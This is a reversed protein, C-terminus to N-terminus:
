VDFNGTQIYIQRVVDLFVSANFKNKFQGISVEGSPANSDCVCYSWKLPKHSGGSKLGDFLYFRLEAVKTREKQLETLESSM